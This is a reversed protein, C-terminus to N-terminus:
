AALDLWSEPQRGCSRSRLFARGRVAKQVLADLSKELEREAAEDLGGPPVGLQAEMHKRLGERLACVMAAETARKRDSTYRLLEEIGFEEIGDDDDAMGGRTLGASSCWM